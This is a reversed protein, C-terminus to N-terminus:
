RTGATAPEAPRLAKATLHYALLLPPMRLWHARVYLARKALGTMGDAASPHDPQLVRSFLTDMLMQLPAPPRAAGAGLLAAPPVPTALVRQLYRLAYYLPRALDLEEARDALGDWFGPQQGFHHLLSDLDVLDRLGNSFEENFFLHAASHVVMDAPALLRLRDTGAIPRSDAWLKRSDPKRRATPPLIAHHVDLVTLRTAHQLPPLEHMWRRYYRQDYPHHHTTTWGQLKLAAEVEALAARPVLIDIDSFVRGRAAPLGAFLYAAGKLLVAEVGARSAAACVYRVERRVAEEQARALVQAADLHPRCESPVGDLLKRDALVAALRALLNAAKAQRLLLEWDQISWRGLDQPACLARALLSPKM